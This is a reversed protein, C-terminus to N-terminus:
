KGTLSTCSSMARLLVFRTEYDTMMNEKRQSCEPGGSHVRM